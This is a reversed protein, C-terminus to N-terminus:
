GSAEKVFTLLLAVLFVAVILKIATDLTAATIGGGWIATIVLGGIIFTAAVRFVEDPNM